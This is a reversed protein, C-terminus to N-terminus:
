RLYLYVTAFYLRFPHENALCLPTLRSAQHANWHERFLAPLRNHGLCASYLGTLLPPCHGLGFSSSLAGSARRPEECEGVVLCARTM